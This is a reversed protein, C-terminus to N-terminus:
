TQPRHSSQSGIMNFESSVDSMSKEPVKKKHPREERMAAVEEKLSSLATMMQTMIVQEPTAGAHTSSMGAQQPVRESSPPTSIQHYKQGHSPPSKPTKTLPGAHGTTLGTGEQDQGERERGLPRIQGFLGRGEHHVGGM